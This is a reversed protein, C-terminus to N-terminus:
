RRPMARLQLPAKDFLEDYKKRFVPSSRRRGLIGNQATTCAMTRSPCSETTGENGFEYVELGEYIRREEKGERLVGPQKLKAFGTMVLWLM